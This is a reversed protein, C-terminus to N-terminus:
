QQVQTLIFGIDICQAAILIDSNLSFNNRHTDPYVYIYLDPITLEFDNMPM